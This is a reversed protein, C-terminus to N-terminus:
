SRYMEAFKVPKRVPNEQQKAIVFEIKAATPVITKKKLKDDSVLKKVLLVDSSEKVETSEKLKNPINKSANKYEIKCSKSGYSEFKPQKFEELGSYSLDIKLPSFLGTPPPPVVNYSEFAVGKRIKDTIQS